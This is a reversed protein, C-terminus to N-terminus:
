KKNCGGSCSCNCKKKGSCKEIIMERATMASNLNISEILIPTEKEFYSYHYIDTKYKESCSQCLSLGFTKKIEGDIKIVPSFLVGNEEAEEVSKLEKEIYIISEEKSEIEYIEMEIKRETKEIESCKEGFYVSEIVKVEM